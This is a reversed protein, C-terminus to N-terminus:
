VVGDVLTTLEVGPVMAPAFFFDGWSSVADSLERRERWNMSVQEAFSLISVSGETVHVSTGFGHLWKAKSNAVIQILYPGSFTEDATRSTTLIVDFAEPQMRLADVVEAVFGSIPFLRDLLRHWLDTFM